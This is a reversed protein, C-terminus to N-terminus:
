VVMCTNASIWYLVWACLKTGTASSLMIASLVTYEKSYIGSHKSTAIILQKDAV